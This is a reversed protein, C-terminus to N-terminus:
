NLDGEDAGDRLYRYYSISLILYNITSKKKVPVPKNLRIYGHGISNEEEGVM